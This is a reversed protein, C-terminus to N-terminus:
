PPLRHEALILRLDAVHDAPEGVLHDARHGALQVLALAERGLDVLLHGLETQEADGHRRLQAPGAHVGGGIRQHHLLQAAAIGRDGVLAAQDLQDARQEGAVAGVALALAPQPRQELALAAAGIPDGLGIGARVHRADAGGGGAGGRAPPEVAALQPDVVRGHAVEGHHEGAGVLLGPVAAHADEQDVGVPRAERATGLLVLHPLPGRRHACQMEVADLQRLLGQEAGLPAAEVDHHAHEVLAPDPDRCEGIPMAWAPM